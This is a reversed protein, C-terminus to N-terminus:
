SLFGPPLPEEGLLKYRLSPIHAEPNQSLYIGNPAALTFGLEKEFAIEAGDLFLAAIGMKKGELCLFSLLSLVFEDDNFEPDFALKTLKFCPLVGDLHVYFSVEAEILGGISADDVFLFYLAHHEGLPFDKDGYLFKARSLFPELAKGDGQRYPRILTKYLM